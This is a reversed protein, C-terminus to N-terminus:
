FSIIEVLNHCLELMYTVIIMYVYPKYLFMLILYRGDHLKNAIHHESQRLVQSPTLGSGDQWTSTKM